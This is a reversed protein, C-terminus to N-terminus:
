LALRGGALSPRRPRRNPRSSPALFFNILRSRPCGRSSTPNPSSFPLSLFSKSPTKRGERANRFREQREGARDKFDGGGRGSVGWARARPPTPVFDSPGSIAGCLSSFISDAGPFPIAKPPKLGWSGTHSGDRSACARNRSALRSFRCGAATRTRGILALEQELGKFVSLVAIPLDQLLNAHIRPRRGM